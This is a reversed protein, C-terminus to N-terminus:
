AGAAKEEEDRKWKPKFDPNYDHTFSFGFAQCLTKLHGIAIEDSEMCNREFGEPLDAYGGKTVEHWSDEKFLAPVVPRDKNAVVVYLYGNKNRGYAFVAQTQRKGPIPKGMEDKVDTLFKIERIFVEKKGLNSLLDEIVSRLRPLSTSAKVPFEWAPKGNPLIKNEEDPHHMWVALQPHGAFMDFTFQGCEWSGEVYPATPIALKGHRAPSKKFEAM